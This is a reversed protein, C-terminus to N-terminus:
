IFPQKDQFSQSSLIHELPKLILPQVPHWPPLVDGTECLGNQRGHCFDVDSVLEM